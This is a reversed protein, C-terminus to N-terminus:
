LRKLERLRFEDHVWEVFRRPETTPDPGEHTPIPVDAPDLFRYARDGMFVGKSVQLTIDECFDPIAEIREKISLWTPEPNDYNFEVKM